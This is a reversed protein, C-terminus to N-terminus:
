IVPIHQTRQHINSYLKVRQPESLFPLSVLLVEGLHFLATGRKYSRKHDLILKSKHKCFRQTSHLAMSDIIKYILCVNVHKNLNEWSKKLIACRHFQNTKKDLTQKYLSQLPKLTTHNAQSWSTLCYIMQSFIVSHMYM